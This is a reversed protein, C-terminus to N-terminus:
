KKLLSSVINKNKILSKDKKELLKLQYQNLKKMNNINTNENIKTQLKIQNKKMQNLLEIIRKKCQFLYSPEKNMEIKLKEIEYELDIKLKQLFAISKLNSIQHDRLLNILLKKQKIEHKVYKKLKDIEALVSSHDLSRESTNSTIISSHDKSRKSTIEKKFKKVDSIKSMMNKLIPVKIGKMREEISPYIQASSFTAKTLHEIKKIREHKSFEPHIYIRNDKIKIPTLINGM